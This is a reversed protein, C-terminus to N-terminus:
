QIRPSPLYLCSMKEIEWKKAGSAMSAPLNVSVMSTASM